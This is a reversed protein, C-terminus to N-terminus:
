APRSPQETVAREGIPRIVTPDEPGLAEIVLPTRAISERLAYESASGTATEPTPALAEYKGRERLLGTQRDLEIEV